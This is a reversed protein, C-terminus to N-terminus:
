FLTSCYLLYSKMEFFTGVEYGDVLVSQNIKCVIFRRVSLEILVSVYMCMDLVSM